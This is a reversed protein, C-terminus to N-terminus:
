AATLPYPSLLARRCEGDQPRLVHAVVQCSPLACLDALCAHQPRATAGLEAPGPAPEIPRYDFPACLLHKLSTDARRRVPNGGGRDPRPGAVPKALQRSGGTCARRTNPMRIPRTPATSPVCRRQRASRRHNGSWASRNPPAHRPLHRAIDLRHLFPAAPLGSVSIAPLGRRRLAATRLLYM